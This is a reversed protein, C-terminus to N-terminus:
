AALTSDNKPVARCADPLGESSSHHLDVPPGVSFRAFCCGTDMDDPDAQEHDDDVVDFTSSEELADLNLISAMDTTVDEQLQHIAKTKGSPPPM